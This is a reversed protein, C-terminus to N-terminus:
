LVMPQLLVRWDGCKLIAPYKKGRIELRVVPQPAAKLAISLYKWNLGLTASPDVSKDSEVLKTVCEVKGSGKGGLGSSVVLSTGVLGNDAITFALMNNDVTVAALKIARTLMAVDVEMDWAPEEPWFRDYNPFPGDIVRSQITISPGRLVIANGAAAVSVEVEGLFWEDRIAAGILRFASAPIIVDLPAVEGNLQQKLEALRYGDVAAAVAKDGAIVIRVGGLPGFPDDAKAAFAVQVQVRELWEAPITTPEAASEVKIDVFQDVPLCSISGEYGGCQIRLSDTGHDYKWAMDASDLQGIIAKLIAFPVCFGGESNNKNTCSVDVVAATIQDMATFTVINGHISCKIYGLIPTVSDSSGATHDLLTVLRQVANRDLQVELDMDM